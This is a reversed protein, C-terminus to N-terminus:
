IYEYILFSMFSRPLATPVSVSHYSNSDGTPDFNEIQKDDMGDRLDLSGGICHIFPTFRGLTFSVV